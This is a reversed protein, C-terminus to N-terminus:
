WWWYCTEIGHADLRGDVYDLTAQLEASYDEQVLKIGQELCYRMLEIPAEDTIGYKERLMTEAIEKGLTVLLDEANEQMLIKGYQEMSQRFKCEAIAIIIAAQIPNIGAETAFDEAYAKSLLFPVFEGRYKAALLIRTGIWPDENWRVLLDVAFEINSAAFATALELATDEHINNKIIFSKMKDHNLLLPILSESKWIVYGEDESPTSARDIEATNDAAYALNHSAFGYAIAQKRGFPAKQVVKMFEYHTQEFLYGQHEYGFMLNFMDPLVSGYMEQLNMVGYRNGLKWALYTHTAPGWAFATVSASFSLIIMVSGLTVKSILTNKM